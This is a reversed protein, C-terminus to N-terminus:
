HLKAYEAKAQTLMPIEPYSFVSLVTADQRKSEGTTVIHHQFAGV